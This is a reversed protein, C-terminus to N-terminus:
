IGSALRPLLVDSYSYIPGAILSCDVDTNKSPFNGTEKFKCKVIKEGERLMFIFAVFATISVPGNIAKTAQYNENM